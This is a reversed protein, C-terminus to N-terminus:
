IRDQVLNYLDQMTSSRVLDEATIVVDYKVNVYAIFILANISDWAIHERFVSEPQLSDTKTNEIEEFAKKVGFIFDEITIM